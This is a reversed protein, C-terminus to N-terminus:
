TGGSARVRVPPYRQRVRVLVPKLEVLGDGEQPPAAFLSGGASTSATVWLAIALEQLTVM